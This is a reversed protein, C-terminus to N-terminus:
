GMLEESGALPAGGGLDLNMDQLIDELQEDSINFDMDMPLVFADDQVAQAQHHHRHQQQQQQQQGQAQSQQGQTIGMPGNKERVWGKFKELLVPDSAATDVTGLIEQARSKLREDSPFVGTVAAEHQVFDVLGTELERSCFITAPPPYRTTLSELFKNATSTEAAVPKTGDRMAVQVQDSGEFPAMASKPFAYPPAFGSGGQSISWSETAPLGPGSEKIIGVDRKFRLLWEANDAATQNWPDDSDPTLTPSIPHALNPFPV